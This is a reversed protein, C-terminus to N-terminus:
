WDFYVEASNGSFLMNLCTSRDNRGFEPHYSSASVTPVVGQVEFRIKRDNKLVLESCQGLSLVGIEPHLHFRGVASRFSGKLHDKVILRGKSFHWERTHCVRGQLRTYGDHSCRIIVQGSNKKIHLDYPKARRAVRFGSWVESSNHGDVEVTNHASTSRQRLREPGLGYCSSGSDVIVRQGDVSLEFSLTDAHAHGPLYDPGIEGVDVILVADGMTIRVYGSSRLDVLERADDQHIQISLARAYEKLNAVTAAVGFASDNFLAINGDPHSMANIWGLMKKITETLNAYTVDDLLQPFIRQLQIVDLIGELVLAHYMPSREFHGGDSLVQESIERILLSRGKSLWRDAEMGEFFVGAFILAKANEFLHNGLLHYELRRRLHRIQCVLSHLFQEDLERNALGWKIWNVIRMSLPFPQWGVGIGKPNENIWRKILQHHISTREDAGVATLDDFYHLNYLWLLDISKDNWVVSSEIVREKNLFRCRDNGTIKKERKIFYQWNERLLRRRPTPLDFPVFPIFYRTIRGYIQIPRLHKITHYYLGVNM